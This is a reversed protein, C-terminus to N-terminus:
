SSARRTASRAQQYLTRCVKRGIDQMFAEPDAGSVDLFLKARTQNTDELNLKVSPTCVKDLATTNGGDNGGGSDGDNDGDGGGDDGGTATKKLKFSSTVDNFAKDTLNTNSKDLTLTRGKFSFDSYLVVKYGPALKVSTILNNFKFLGRVDGASEDQCFSAGFFDNNEYFCVKANGPLAQTSLADAAGAPTPATGSCAALLLGLAAALLVPTRPQLNM